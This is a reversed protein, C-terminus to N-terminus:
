TSYNRRVVSIDNITSAIVISAYVRQEEKMWKYPTLRTPKTLNSSPANNERYANSPFRKTTMAMNKSEVRRALKFAKELSTPELIRLEHQIKDKLNGMFLDLLNDNPINKVRFSLKQFQQIHEAVLGKQKLNVLQSFFTNNKADRYSILEEIFISWSIITDKKQECIWQYWVFQELELYLSAITVKQLNPVQHLDFFQEMQFIWTIPEKGDFKRMAIKPLQIGRPFWGQNSRTNADFGGPTSKSFSPKEFHSSNREDHTGQGVKDDNPLKEELHQILNVIREMGEELNEIKKEMNRMNTEMSEELKKELNRMNKELNGMNTEMSEELKKEMNYLDLTRVMGEFIKELQSVRFSMDESEEHIMTSGERPKVPTANKKLPM